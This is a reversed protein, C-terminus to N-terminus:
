KGYLPVMINQLKQCHLVRGWRLSFVLVALMFLTMGPFLVFMNCIKRKM